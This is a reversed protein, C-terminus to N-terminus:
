RGGSGIPRMTTRPRTTADDADLRDERERRRLGRPLAAREAQGRVRVHLAEHRALHRGQLGRGRHLAVALALSPTPWRMLPRARDRRRAPRKVAAATSCCRAPPRPHRVTPGYKEDCKAKIFASVARDEKHAMAELAEKIINRVEGKLKGHEDQLLGAPRRGAARHAPRRVVGVVLQPPATAAGDDAGQTRPLLAVSRVMDTVMRGIGRSGSM